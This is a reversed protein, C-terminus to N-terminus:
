HRIIMKDTSVIKDQVKINLVYVGNQLGSVDLTVVDEEGKIVSSITKVFRSNNDWLELTYDVSQVTEESGLDM